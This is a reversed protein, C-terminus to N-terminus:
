MRLLAPIFLPDEMEEESLNSMLKASEISHSPHREPSPATRYKDGIPYTQFIYRTTNGWEVALLATIVAMDAESRSSLATKAMSSSPSSRQPIPLTPLDLPEFKEDHMESNSSAASSKQDSKEKKSGEPTM